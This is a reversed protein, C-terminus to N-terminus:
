AAPASIRRYERLLLLGVGIWIAVVALNVRAFDGAGLRLMHTGAFVVGAALVDGARVFFTDIAQKAKYKEPRSTPLWLLQKATNMISYDGSNEATKMWLIVGLSAGFSILGYAGFSIIPLTFLAGAMGLYKVIRSVLFAQVVITVISVGFLYRGTFEGIFAEKNFSPNAAFHANAVEVLRRSLIFEGTTNVVNLLVLVGAMLLLYRSRFVLAFGDTRDLAAEAVAGSATPLQRMAALYLGLHLLLLVAAIEMMVFPSVERSFLWGAVAAGVPAGATAGIAILPFLRDGDPKSYIDNAFSWFQAIMTLNFIGVWVYFVFGLNPPQFRGAVFFAQICAVFFLVVAVILRRRPLRSAAWAYLPVYGILTVAQAASAYTKLEAGGALLVLPDRVTKLIYYAILLVLVNSFMLLARGGEGPRVDGFVRLADDLRSPIQLSM